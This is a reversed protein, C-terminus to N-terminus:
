SSRVGTGDGDARSSCTRVRGWAATEELRWGTRHLGDVLLGADAVAERDVPAGALVSLARGALSSEADQLETWNEWEPAPAHDDLGESLAEAAELATQLREERGATVM